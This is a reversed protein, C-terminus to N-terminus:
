FFPNYNGKGDSSKEDSAPSPTTAGIRGHSSTRHHDPRSVAIGVNHSDVEGLKESSGLPFEDSNNAPENHQNNHSPFPRPVITYPASKNVYEYQPPAPMDMQADPRAVPPPVAVPIDHPRFHDTEPDVAYSQGGEARTKGHGNFVVLMRTFAILFVIVWLMLVCTSIIAEIRIGEELKNVLRTVTGTIADTTESSPDALFSDDKTGNSLAAAAGLSFTDNDMTPFDIHAHDHVWTLGKQIGEIKLTILCNLVETIPEYLITGGFTVNLANSMEDVFVNLTNNLASTSTNVWSFINDNLETNMKIIATNTGNAWAESANNLAYVVDEAFDGVQAALAPVEKEITKLLIYQCLCALLGALGLALILLAPVTTCYAVVWRVATQKRVSSFRNALWIGFTASYPRSAIYVVDMPDYSKTSVLMARQQMKRWARIERWAMPVCVLIAAVVLVAIFVKKAIKETEVLGDFFDNIGDDDSCFSLSEKAPVPFASRDFKYTNTHESILDKVKEFPFRLATNTLNHVESFTPISNNLKELGEDWGSPIQLNKLEDIQKTLNLSDMGDGGFIQPISNIAKILKNVEDQFGDAVSAIDDGVVDLTKNLGDSIDEVANLVVHLSGRVAMTILCVYTSTLLNIYFVVIEEVGTITLNLMAMLGHVAKEIGAATIENVGQSMYHPMSAMVSGATEVSTCASLAERRASDLNDNLDRTAILVRVLILALLITWRNIWVQSLRARLGLYPTLYLAQNTMPRPADQGAYYDRMEHGGASSSPPMDPFTAPHNVSSSM